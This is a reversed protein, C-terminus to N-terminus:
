KGNKNGVLVSSIAEALKQIQYPKHLFVDPWEPHYGATMHDKDYGSTMIVPIEPAIKHMATLTEWGNMRPMVLDCLVCRIEDRNKRFVEVAEVGDKASIVEYGLRKIMETVVNRVMEEDEVLLVTGGTEAKTYQSVKEVHRPLEEVCLPIFARFVSGRELESEVTIAGGHAKVIGMAVSLGLGRGICKNSYFPDFIKEIDKDAIGCGADTVELCAYATDQPRWDVPFRRSAPIEAASVTKVNLYVSAQKEGVAEWANTALNALLQQVQNPNASVVPGHSPLETEMSVNGPIVAGLMPLSFRCIESLDLSERKGPTQGLYTTILRSIEAAKGAAKMAASLKNVSEADRPLDDIAMELNGIVAGLQNNFHHTIAGAMRCLSEAKQLQRNQVELKEKDAEAKKFETIDTMVNLVYKKKGFSIMVANFLGERLVGDKTFVKMEFNEVRGRRNLENLFAVRQEETICGIEMSTHGIVEDRKRGMLRLFADSVDVFRGEELTTIGVPISNQLFAKAFKEQNIRTQRVEEEFVKLEAVRQRLEKLEEILQKKTKKEDEM